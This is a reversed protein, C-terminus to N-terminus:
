IKKKKRLQEKSTQNKKNKSKQSHFTGSKVTGDNTGFSLKPGGGGGKLIKGINKDEGWLM